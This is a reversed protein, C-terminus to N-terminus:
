TIILESPDRESGGHVRYVGPRIEHSRLLVKVRLGPPWTTGETWVVGELVSLDALDLASLDAGSADVEGAHLLGILEEAWDLAGQLQGDLDGALARARARGRGRGLSRTNARTLADALDRHLDLARRFSDARAFDLGLTDGLDLDRDFGSACARMLDRTLHRALDIARTLDPFHHIARILDQDIARTLDRTLDRALDIARVLDIACARMLIVVAAQGAPLPLAPRSSALAEPDAATASKYRDAGENPGLIAALGADLDLMAALRGTLQRRAAALSADIGVHEPLLDDNAPESM